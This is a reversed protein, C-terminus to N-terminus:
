TTESYMSSFEPIEHEDPRAEFIDAIVEDDMGVFHYYLKRQVPCCKDSDVIHCNIDKRKNETEVYKNSILLALAALDILSSYQEQSLIVQKIM